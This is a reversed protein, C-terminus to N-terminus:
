EVTIGTLYLLDGGGRGDAWTAPLAEGTGPLYVGLLLDYDGPPTECPVLLDNTGAYQVGPELVGTTYGAPNVDARAVGIGDADALVLALSYNEPLPADTRWVTEVTLIACANVTTPTTLRWDELVFDDGFRIQETPGRLWLTVNEYGTTRWHVGAVPVPTHTEALVDRYAADFGEPSAARLMWVRPEMRVFAAFDALM